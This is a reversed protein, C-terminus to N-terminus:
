LSGGGDSNSSSDFGSDSSSDCSSDSYSSDNSSDNDCNSNDTSDSSEGIVSQDSHSNNNHSHYSSGVPNTIWHFLLYYEFFGWGSSTHASRVAHRYKSKKVKSILSLRHANTFRRGQKKFSAKKKKILFKLYEKDKKNLPQNKKISSTDKSKFFNRIKKLIRKM